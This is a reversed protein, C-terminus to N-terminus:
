IVIYWFETRRSKATMKESQFPAQVHLIPINQNYITQATITDLKKKM